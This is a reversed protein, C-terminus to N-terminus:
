IPCMMHRPKSRYMVYQGIANRLDAVASSSVFSKVEVAIQENGQQATILDREAVLDIFVRQRGVLMTYDEDTITWGDHILAAKVAHHYIDRAPVGIRGPTM